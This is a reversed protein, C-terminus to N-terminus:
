VLRVIPPLEYRGDIVESDPEYMRLIPRFGGKPTPLWNALEHPDDPADPQLLITLSGDAGVQLGPTRDGISYRGIPNAVLFFDPTDYMTVSWFARVPPPTPFRLAYRSAGNLPNGDADEYIMAYAAEYAHNGWLGGRAAGARVMYRLQPDVEMKWEPADLAGIEFFDLNYDFLHYTLHWGNRRPSPTDKLAQEMAARGRELGRRLAVALDLDPDIYPSDESLLGLPEFRAQYDVDRAAPPFVQMWVRMREFFVLDDAVPCAPDPLGLGTRGTVPTLILEAQLAGVAPLDDPGAVAWRGVITAVTTPFRIRPLDSGAQSGGGPPVLLYSGAATGTARHGVYAFNNTWADVFQLVYYRGDTDPVDLRVPGGSLDVQAISYVTDNNISVFTTEPGALETAHGFQNFPTAPVKGIGSRTFREVEQLDFVLPFGYAFAEAALAALEDSIRPEGGDRSM